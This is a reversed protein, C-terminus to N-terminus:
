GVRNMILSSGARVITATTSTTGQAWTFTFSGSTSSTTLIGEWMFSADAAGLGGVILSGTPLTGNRVTLATFGVSTTTASTDVCSVASGITSSAPGTLIVALDAAALANYDVTLSFKYVASSAVALTLDPDASPTTNSARSTDSGKYAALPIFWSNVDSANLVQGVTWVPPAM